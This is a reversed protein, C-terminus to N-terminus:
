LRDVYNIEDTKKSKRGKDLNNEATRYGRGGRGETNVEWEDDKEGEREEELRGEKRGEAM